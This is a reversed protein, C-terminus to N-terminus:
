SICLRLFRLTTKIEDFGLKDFLRYEIIGWRKTPSKKYPAVDEADWSYFLFSFLM